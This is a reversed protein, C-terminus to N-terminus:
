GREARLDKAARSLIAGWTQGWKVRQAQAQGTAPRRRFKGGHRHPGAAPQGSGSPASVVSAYEELRGTDDTARVPDRSDHLASGTVARDGV